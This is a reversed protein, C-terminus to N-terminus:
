MNKYERRSISVAVEGFFTKNKVIYKADQTRNSKQNVKSKMEDCEVNANRGVLRICVGRSVNNEEEGPFIKNKVNLFIIIKQM